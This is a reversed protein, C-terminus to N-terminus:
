KIELNITTKTTMEVEVLEFEEQVKHTNNYWNCYMKINQEQDITMVTRDNTLTQVNTGTQMGGSWKNRLWKNTGKVRAAFGTKIDVRDLLREM